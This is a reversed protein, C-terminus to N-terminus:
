EYINQRWSIILSLDKLKRVLVSAVVPNVPGIELIGNKTQQIIERATWPFKPDRLADELQDRTERTDIGQIILHYSIVSSSNNVLAVTPSGGFSEELPEPVVQSVTPEIPQDLDVSENFANEVESEQENTDGAEHVPEFEPVSQESTSFEEEQVADHIENAIQGPDQVQIGGDLDIVLVSQCRPCAVVGFDQELTM